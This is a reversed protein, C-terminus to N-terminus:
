LRVHGSYKVPTPVEAVEAVECRPLPTQVPPPPPRPVPSLPRYNLLVVTACLCHSGPATVCAMTVSQNRNLTITKQQNIYPPTPEFVRRARKLTGSLTGPCVCVCLRRFADFLVRRISEEHSNNHTKPEHARSGVGASISISTRAHPRTHTAYTQPRTQAKALARSGASYQATNASAFIRTRVNM